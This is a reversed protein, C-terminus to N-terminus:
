AANGIIREYMQLTRQGIAVWDLHHRVYERSSAGKEELEKRDMRTASILSDRLADLNGPEFTAFSGPKLSSYVTEIKPLVCFKGMSAALIASGSNLASRFPLVVVDAARFFTGVMGSEVERAHITVARHPRSLARQVEPTPHGGAAILKAGTQRHVDPFVQLLDTIGKNERMAGFFLVVIEDFPVELKQRCLEQSPPLPYSDIYHGHPTVFHPQDKRITYTKRLQKAVPENFVAFADVLSLFSQVIKKEQQPSLFSDHSLLNHVTHVVKLGLRNKAAGLVQLNRKTKLWRAFRGRRSKYLPHLWDLHLIDFSALDALSLFAKGELGRVDAGSHRVANFYSEQFPNTNGYKLYAIRLTM